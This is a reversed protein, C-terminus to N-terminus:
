SSPRRFLLAFYHGKGDWGPEHRIEEFGLAQLDSSVEKALVGHGGRDPVGVPPTDDEQPEFDIVLLTGGPKVSRWLERGMAEPDQFHHYVRRLLIARCCELPLGIHEQDGLIAQVQTLQLDDLRENLDDVLDEDVETALVQGMPGVADALLVAFDGDGTGVDAVTWGPQIKMLELIRSEEDEEAAVAGCAFLPLSLLLLAFHNLQTM